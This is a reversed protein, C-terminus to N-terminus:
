SLGADRLTPGFVKVFDDAQQPSIQMDSYSVPPVDPENAFGVYPITIGEKQYDKLYQVLYNAFPQRWDGTNCWTSYPSGCLAGGNTESGNTKMFAPASWADAYLQTIGYNREVQQSLWVQGEDDGNWVYTPRVTAFGPNTPEITSDSTSPIINRLIDLGAGSSTSFLDDLVQKQATAPLGRLIGAQGFAESIGFGDITQYKTTGDITIGSGTQIVTPAPSMTGFIPGACGIILNMCVFLLLSLIVGKPLIGSHLMITEKGRSDM